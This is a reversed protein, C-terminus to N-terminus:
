RHAVMVSDELVVSAGNKGKVIARLRLAGEEFASTDFHATFPASTVTVRAPSKTTFAPDGDVLEFAVSEVTTTPVDVTADASKDSFTGDDHVVTLKSAPEALGDVYQRAPIEDLKTAYLAATLEGNHVGVVELTTTDILAAGSSGPESECQHAFRGRTVDIMGYSDEEGSACDLMTADWHKGDEFTM